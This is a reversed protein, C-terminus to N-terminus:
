FVLLVLATIPPSPHPLPPLHPLLMVKTTPFRTLSPLLEPRPGSPGPWLPPTTVSSSLTVEHKKHCRHFTTKAVFACFWWLSCFITILSALMVLGSIALIRGMWVLRVKHKFMWISHWWFALFGKGYIFYWLKSEASVGNPAHSIPTSRISEDVMRACWFSADM